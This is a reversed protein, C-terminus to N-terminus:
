SRRNFLLYQGLEDLSMYQFHRCLPYAPLRKRYPLPFDSSWLATHGTVRPGSLSPFHLLFCVAATRISTLSRVGMTGLREASPRPSRLARVPMDCRYPHFPATLACWCDPLPSAQCVGCPALGFLSTCRATPAHSSPGDSSGPLSSSDRHSGPGLHIIAVERATWFLLEV